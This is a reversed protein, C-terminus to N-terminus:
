RAQYFDGNKNPLILHFPQIIASMSMIQTMAKSHTDLEQYFHDFYEFMTKKSRRADKTM